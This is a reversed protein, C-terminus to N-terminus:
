LARPPLSRELPVGWPCGTRHMPGALDAPVREAGRRPLSGQRPPVNRRVDGVYALGHVGACCAPSIVHASPQRVVVPLGPPEVRDLSGAVALAAVRAFPEALAWGVLAGLPQALLVPQSLVCSASAPGGWRLCAGFPDAM